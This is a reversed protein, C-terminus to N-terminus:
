FKYQMRGLLTNTSYEDYDTRELSFYFNVQKSWLYRGSAGYTLNTEETGYDAYDGYLISANAYFELARSVPMNYTASAVVTAYGEALTRTVNADLSYDKFLLDSYVGGLRVVSIFAKDTSEYDAFQGELRGYANLREGIRRSGSLYFIRTYGDEVDTDGSAYYVIPRVENFGVSVSTIADPRHTVELLGTTLVPSSEAQDIDMSVNATIVTKDSPLYSLLAYFYQRDVEGEFSNHTFAISANMTKGTMYYYAGMALADTSFEESYPDPRIGGYFGLGGDKTKYVANVGDVRETSVGKPWLRGASVYYRESPNYEIFLTNLSNGTSTYGDSLNERLRGDFHFSLTKAENWQLADLKLRATVLHLDSSSASSDVLYSELTITGKVEAGSRAPFLVLLM